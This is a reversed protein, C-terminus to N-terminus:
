PAITFTGTPLTDVYPKYMIPHRSPEGAPVLMDTTTHTLRETVDLAYTGPAPTKLRMFLWNSWLGAGIKPNFPAFTPDFSERFAGTWFTKSQGFTVKVVGDVKVQYQLYNAVSNARGLTLTLWGSGVVLKYDAPIPDGALHDVESAFTGDPFEFWFGDFPYWLIATHMPLQPEAPLPAGAMAPVTAVAMLLLLACTLVFLLRKMTFGWNGRGPAHRAGEGPM